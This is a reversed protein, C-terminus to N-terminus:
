VTDYLGWNRCYPDPSYPDGSFALALAKCGGACKGVSGCESCSEYGALSYRFRLMVPAKQWVALLNDKLANGCIYAKSKFYNCPVIDGNAAIVMKLRGAMCFPYIFERNFGSMFLLAHNPNIRVGTARIKDLVQFFSRWEDADLVLAPDAAPTPIMDLLHLERFGNEKVFGAVDPIAALNRRNVVCAISVKGAGITSRLLDLAKLSLAYADSRGRLWNHAEAQISEINVSVNDVGIDQLEVAAEKDILVANSNLWVDVDSQKLRRMLKFLLPKRLMPEGGSFTVVAPDLETCIKEVIMELEDDHLEESSPLTNAKNYCYVCNLNCVNTVDLQVKAPRQFDYEYKQLFSM